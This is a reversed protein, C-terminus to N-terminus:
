LTVSVGDRLRDLTARNATLRHPHTMVARLATVARRAQDETEVEPNIRLIAKILLKEVLPDELPREYAAMAAEDRYIWGLGKEGPTASGHGSLWQIVPLEVYGAESM